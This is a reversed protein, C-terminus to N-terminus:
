TEIYKHLKIPKVHKKVKKKSEPVKPLSDWDKFNQLFSKFQEDKSDYLSLHAVWRDAFQTCDVRGAAVEDVLWHVMAKGYADIAGQLDYGISDIRNLYCQAKSIM